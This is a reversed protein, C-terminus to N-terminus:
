EPDKPLLSVMEKVNWLWRGGVIKPNLKGEMRLAHLFKDSEADMIKMARPTQVAEPIKNKEERKQLKKYIRDELAQIDEKTALDEFNM